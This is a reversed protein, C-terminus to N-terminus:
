YRRLEPDVRVAWEDIGGELNFVRSYGQTLLWKGVHASRIGHHCIVIVDRDLPIEALRGPIEAMPIHTAGDIRVWDWETSERVDLLLPSEHESRQDHLRDHAQTPSLTALGPPM